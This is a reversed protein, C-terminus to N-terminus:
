SATVAARPPLTEGCKECRINKGDQTHGCHKCQVPQSPDRPESTSAAANVPEVDRGCHKCVRAAKKIDEACHPCPRVDAPRSAVPAPTRVQEQAAEAKLNPMLLIAILAFPGFLFGLFFWAAGSRGRGPAAFACLVGFALWVILLEM